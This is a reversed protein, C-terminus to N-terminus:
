KDVGFHSHTKFVMELQKPELNAIYEGLIRNVIPVVLSEM